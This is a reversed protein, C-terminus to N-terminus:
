YEKWVVRKVYDTYSHLIRVVKDSVNPMEYDAVRRLLREEGRPQGELVAIGQLVRDLSLGVMMVSAEEFGEPREHAERLNLAPFNMISSEETITGSDSLVVFATKQLKNYDHFGLPSLLRVNKHFVTREQEFRKRTRPHTSVIIPYDYKEALSNLINVLSHLKKKSAVNEERHASVVFFNEEELQLQSLVDSSEICDMYYNLVEFMPSGTKIVQDAPLGEALLYERAISSYTLNIDSIHDVLRRNIEEPVRQDFCRNGAEMHFVPIKRRRAPLASICSNTDGLILVAEPTEEELVRDVNIIIQGITEAANKQAADLFYDPKRIGLDSFFVENLEYDFNQGTHVLVHDCHRDLKAFVRSLRILEPRTGVISMVKLKKM